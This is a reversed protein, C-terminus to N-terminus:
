KKKHHSFLFTVNFDFNALFDAYNSMRSICLIPLSKHPHLIQTLPKHDTILTWHRAYLYLFFKQVAWVIALAERDMQPYKQETATLARSAYAIPRELGNELRHSLVAGIGVKSADTALLLPLHPDYPMLVESSTLANKVDEYARDAQSTWQFPERRLMERLPANRTSLNSIFSNYYCAKGLFLQLEEVTSPKPAEKVATIHSDAKHIGNADIKHGLFEVSPAAFICKARNLRLGHQTLRELTNQLAIMLKGFDSAYILIDDFFSCVNTLGFLVNEMRRQWIAPINAAGYVARTPRILGHTPTNLTLAHAFDDDITLHSYADTIDLHCFLKSDIMKNLLMEAKPIPHEDIIM